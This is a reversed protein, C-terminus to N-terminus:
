RGGGGEGARAREPASALLYAPQYASLAAVDGPPVAEGLGYRAAWALRAARPAAWAPPVLVARAGFAARVAAGDPVEPYAVWYIPAEPTFAGRRAYAAGAFAGGGEGAAAGAAEGGGKEGAGGAGEGFPADGVARLGGDALEAVLAAVEIVGEARERVLRAGEWRYVAAYARGRRADILSVIRGSVGPPVALALAALSSVGTLPVGLAYALAKAATVGIRVGTYSGPGRAVVISQVSRKAVGARDFLAQLAPYLAEAHNLRAAATWEALIHEGDVLAASLPLASTDFALTLMM